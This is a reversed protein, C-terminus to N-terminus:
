TIKDVFDKIASQLPSARSPEVAPVRIESDDSSFRVDLEIWLIVALIVVPIMIAMVICTERWEKSSGPFWWCGLCGHDDDLM